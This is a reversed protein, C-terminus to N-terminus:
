KTIVFYEGGTRGFNEPFYLESAVAPLHHYTGPILARVYYDFEYVGKPLRERFLFLRDDHAEEASPSFRGHRTKPAYYDDDLDQRGLIDFGLFGLARFVSTFLHNKLVFSLATGNSGSVGIGEDYYDGNYFESDNTTDKKTQDETALNTNVIETGAPIFDEIAVFNRDKPTSITLHVKLVDGVNAASLPEKSDTDDAKFFERRVTFGEDRPAVKDVPLYYKLAMDYYFANSLANRATKVFKLVHLAGISIDSTPIVGEFM